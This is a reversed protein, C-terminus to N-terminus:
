DVVERYLHQPIHVLIEWPITGTTKAIKSVSNPKQSDRGIIVVGDGKKVEEIHSVDISTINMSVRGVIPCAVGNVLFSGHNSLRRDVGEFYGVPVTAIKSPKEATHTCNYGVREGADIIRISSIVSEIQLVPKVDLKKEHSPDIGYLGIGLRLMNGPIDAAYTSGATASIHIYKINEFAKEFMDVLEKWAVIQKQTFSPDVSDADAFHSCIGELQLHKNKQVCAIAEPTDHPLLGQRHMGTDFKLHIKINRRARRSLDRLQEISTITYSCGLKERLLMKTQTYGIILLNTKIGHKKLSRAEFLSDVVFFSLGEKDLIDAVLIIGHGYANSKLVPAIKVNLCAEQYTRLNHLLNSQSISVTVLPIHRLLQKKFHRLRSFLKM